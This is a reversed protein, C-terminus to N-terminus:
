GWLFPPEPREGPPGKEAKEKKETWKIDLELFKETFGKFNEFIEELEEKNFTEMFEPTMLWKSWGKVSEYLVRNMKLIGAYFGLRDAPTMKKIDDLSKTREQAWTVPVGEPAVATGAGRNRAARQM